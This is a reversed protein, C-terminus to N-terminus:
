TKLQATIQETSRIWETQIQCRYVNLSTSVMANLWVIFVNFQGAMAFHQAKVVKSRAYTENQRREITNFPTLRM